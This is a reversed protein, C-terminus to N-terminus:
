ITHILIPNMEIQSWLHFFFELTDQDIAQKKTKQKKFIKIVKINM